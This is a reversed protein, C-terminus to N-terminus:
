QYWGRELNPMPGEGLLGKLLAAGGVPDRKAVMQQVALMNQFAQLGGVWDEQTTETGFGAEGAAKHALWGREFYDLTQDDALEQVRAMAVFASLTM